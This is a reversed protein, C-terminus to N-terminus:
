EPCRNELIARCSQLHEKYKADIRAERLDVLYFDVGDLKAGRLDAGRLNAKRIEEPRKYTQDHYDDTYFGTRSGELAYPSGVLGSRTSGMHFTCGRLDAGRLDAREWEIDALGAEKLNAGRFDARPMKSGTLYAGALNASDFCANPLEVGELDCKQLLADQFRAGVLNAKYLPLLCLVAGSLDAGEFNTEDISADNLIAFAMNAAVFGAGDLNAGEFHAGRLHAEACVAGELNAKSLNLREGRVGSLSADSFDAESADLSEMNAAHLRAKHFCAGIAIAGTLDAGSLDAGTFDAECLNTRIRGNRPFIVSPWQVGAFHGHQLNLPEAGQPMWDSGAAVLLSAASSHLKEQRQYLLSKLKHVLLESAAIKPAALCVLEAPLRYRLMQEGHETWLRDVLGSAALLLQPYRHRLLGFEDPPIERTLKSTLTLWRDLDGALKAVCCEEAYWRDDSREFIRRVAQELAARVGPLAPEAVLEELVTRWLEPNGELPGDDGAQRIRTLLAGCERPHAALLYELLDDTTWPALEFSADVEDTDEDGSALIVTEKRLKRCIAVEPPEDDLFAMGTAGPLVAALHALATSKGAGADGAIQIITGAESGKRQREELFALVLDELPLPEGCHPAFARPRVFARQPTLM